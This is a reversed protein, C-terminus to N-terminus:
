YEMSWIELRLVVIRWFGWASVSVLRDMEEARLYLCSLLICMNNLLGEGARVPADLFSSSFLM